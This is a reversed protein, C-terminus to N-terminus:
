ANTCSTYCEMEVWTIILLLSVWILIINYTEVHRTYLRYLSGFCTEATLAPELIGNIKRM